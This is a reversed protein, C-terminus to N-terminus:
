SEHPFAATRPREGNGVCGHLGNAEPLSLAARLPSADEAARELAALVAARLAQAFPASYRVELELLDERSLRGATKGVLVENLLRQFAVFPLNTHAAVIRRSAAEVELEIAVAPAAAAYPQPLRALGVYVITRHCTSGM